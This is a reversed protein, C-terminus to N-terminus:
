CAEVIFIAWLVVLNIFGNVSSERNEEPAVCHVFYLATNMYSSSNDIVKNILSVFM